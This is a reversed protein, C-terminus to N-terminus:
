GEVYGLGCHHTYGRGCGPCNLVYGGTVDILTEPPMTATDVAAGCPCRWRLTWLWIPRNRKGRNVGSVTGEIVIGEDRLHIEITKDITTM